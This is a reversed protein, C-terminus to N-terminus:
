RFVSKTIPQISLEDDSAPNGFLFRDIVPWEASDCADAHSKARRKGWEGEDRHEDCPDLAGLDKPAPSERVEILSM